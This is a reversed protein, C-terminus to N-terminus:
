ASTAHCDPHHQLIAARMGARAQKKANRVAENWFLLLEAGEVVGDNVCYIAPLVVLDVFLEEGTKAFHIGAGVLADEMRHGAQSIIRGVEGGAMALSKRFTSM